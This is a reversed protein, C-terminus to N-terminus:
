DTNDKADVHGFNTYDMTLAPYEGSAVIDDVAAVMSPVFIPRATTEWWANGGQQAVLMSFYRLYALYTEDQIQGNAYQAYIAQFQLAQNSMLLSFRSNADVEMNPYEQLGRRWATAVEPDLQHANFSTYDRTIEHWNTAQTARTNANLQRALYVLTVVTAVAAVFEGISGIDQISLEM